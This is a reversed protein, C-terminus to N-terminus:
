RVRFVARMGRAAHGPLVCLLRYTGPRLLHVTLTANEGPRIEPTVSSQYGHPGRVQLDHSDEGFNHVAFRVTGHRAASAYPTLHWEREGVGVPTLAAAAAAIVAGIV